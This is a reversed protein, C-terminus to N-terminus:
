MNQNLCMLIFVPTYTLTFHVSMIERAGEKWHDQEAHRCEDEGYAEIDVLHSPLWVLQRVVCHDSGRIHQKDEGDEEGYHSKQKCAFNAEWASSKVTGAEPSVRPARFIYHSKCFCVIVSFWFCCVRALLRICPLRQNHTSPGCCRPSGLLKFFIFIFLVSFLPSMPVFPHLLTLSLASSATAAGQWQQNFYPRRETTRNPSLHKIHRQWPLQPWLAPACKKLVVVAAGRSSGRGGEACM